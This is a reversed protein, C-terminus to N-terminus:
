LHEVRLLTLNLLKEKETGEPYRVIMTEHTIIDVWRGSPEQLRIHLFPSRADREFVQLSKVTFTASGIQIQIM